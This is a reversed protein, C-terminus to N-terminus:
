PGVTGASPGPSGDQDRIRAVITALTELVPAGCLECHAPERSCHAASYWEEACGVCVRLQPDNPQLRTM